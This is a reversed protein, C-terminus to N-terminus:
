EEVGLPLTRHEVREYEAEHCRDNQGQGRGSQAFPQVLVALVLLSEGGEEEVQGQRRREAEEDDRGLRQPVPLLRGFAAVGRDDVSRM